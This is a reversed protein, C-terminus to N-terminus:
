AAVEPLNEYVEHIILGDPGHLFTVPGVDDKQPRRKGGAKVIEGMIRMWESRPLTVERYPGYSAGKIPRNGRAM